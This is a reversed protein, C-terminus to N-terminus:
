SRPEPASTVHRRLEDLLSASSPARVLGHWFTSLADAAAALADASGRVDLAGRTVSEVLTRQAELLALVAALDTQITVHAAGRAAPGHPEGVAIRGAGVRPALREDGVVVDITLAALAACLRDHHAAAENRLIAFAADLLRSAPRDSSSSCV